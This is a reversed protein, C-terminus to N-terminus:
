FNVKKTLNEDGSTVKVVYIKNNTENFNYELESNIMYNKEETLILNGIIDYIKINVQDSPQNVFILKFKGEGIPEINYDLHSPSLSKNYNLHKEVNRSYDLANEKNDVLDQAFPAFTLLFLFLLLLYNKKM